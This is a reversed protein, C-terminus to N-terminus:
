LSCTCATQSFSLKVLPSGLRHAGGVGNTSTELLVLVPKEGSLGVLPLSVAGSRRLLYFPVLAGDNHAQCHCALNQVSRM